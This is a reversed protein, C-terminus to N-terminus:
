SLCVLEAALICVPCLDNRYRPLDTTYKQMGKMEEGAASYGSRKRM